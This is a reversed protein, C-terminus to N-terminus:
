LQSFLSLSLIVDMALKEQFTRKVLVLMPWLLIGREGPLFINKKKFIV